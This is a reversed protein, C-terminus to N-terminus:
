RKIEIVYKSEFYPDSLLSSISWLSIANKRLGAHAIAGTIEEALDGGKLYLIGEAYKGKVWPLFNELATVARSVVWDFNQELSEARANVTSVNELGVARSVEDAVRVKKGISDCLTFHVKPFMIALPM